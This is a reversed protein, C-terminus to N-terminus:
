AQVDSWPAPKGIYYGQAYDVGLHALKDYIAKGSVYEAVTKAGIARAYGLLSEIVPLNRDSHELAKVLSGDIKLFDPHTHQLQRFNSYGAGFDDIALRYGAARLTALYDQHEALDEDELLELILRGPAIGNGVIHRDLLLHLERGTLDQATINLSFDADNEQMPHAAAAVM